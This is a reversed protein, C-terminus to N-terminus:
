YDVVQCKLVLSSPKRRGFFSGKREEGEFMCVCGGHRSLSCLTQGALTGLAGHTVFALGTVLLLRHAPTGSGAELEGHTTDM